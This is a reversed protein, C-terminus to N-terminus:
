KLIISKIQLKFNENKKNGVLFGIEEIQAGNYNPLDLKQGRFNPTMETLLIEIQQWDETTEFYTIFSHQDNKNSKLRFQYRKGDGKINLIVKKFETTKIKSIRNRLLTFGGNNKTSVTGKFVGVREENLYFAGKSNGGMVGDNIIRWGSVNSNKESNFITPMTPRDITM